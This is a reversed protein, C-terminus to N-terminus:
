IINANPTSGRSLREITITGFPDTTLHDMTTLHTRGNEETAATPQPMYSPGRDRRTLSPERYIHMKIAINDLEKRFNENLWCYLYPNVCASSMAFVKLVLDVFKFHPGRVISRDMEAVLSFVNWPLWCLIFLLVIAILINNTRQKREVNFRNTPRQRLRVYIKWYLLATVLLPFCFQFTFTLISYVKRAFENPWHEICYNRFIRLDPQDVRHQTTFCMVPTSLLISTVTTLVLLMIAMKISMREKLPYVILWYRDYAILLITLTSVYVPVAFASFIIRCLSEGFIWHDTLQYYLQIPLSFICLGVDSLALNAILINTVNHMKRHRAVVYVVVTNGVTGVLIVAVYITLVLGRWAPSRLLDFEPDNITHSLNHLMDQELQRLQELSMQALMSSNLSQWLSQSSTM